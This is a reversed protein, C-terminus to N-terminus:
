VQGPALRVRAIEGAHVIREGSPASSDEIVLGGTAADIGLALVPDGARVPNGALTPDGAAAPADGTGQLTVLRGTVCQRAAWSGLDFYGARLAELRGDLRELFEELLADREIPRGGSAERLSTMTPALEPPFDVAAWDANIGIGVVVRPDDTGLGDSEGLIGALKRQELPAALRAVADAADVVGTLLANPGAM